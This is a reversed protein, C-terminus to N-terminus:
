IELSEPTSGAAMADKFWQPQRGKGTWTASADAPNKYKAPAKTKPGKKKKPGPKKGATLEALSFGHAAAAKEAAERAAKIEKKKLGDLTKDIKGRLSMLEKRSMQKLEKSM